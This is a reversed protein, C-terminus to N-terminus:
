RRDAVKKNVDSSLPSFSSSAPRHPNMRRVRRFINKQTSLFEGTEEQKLKELVKTVWTKWSNRPTKKSTGGLM